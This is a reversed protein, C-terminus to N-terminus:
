KFSPGLLFATVSSFVYLMGLGSLFGLHGKEEGVVPTVPEKKCFLTSM